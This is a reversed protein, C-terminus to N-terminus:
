SNPLNRLRVALIAKANALRREVTRLPIERAKAYDRLSQEKGGSLGFVACVLDQEEETLHQLAARVANKLYTKDAEDSPERLGEPVHGAGDHQGGPMVVGEYTLAAEFSGDDGEEDDEDASGAGPRDDGLSLIVPNQARSGIGANSAEALAHGLYWRVTKTIHTSFSCELPKWTRMQEGAILMGQQLLEDSDDASDAVAVGDRRMRKIVLKVLPMAQRWLLTWDGREQAGALEAHTLRKKM